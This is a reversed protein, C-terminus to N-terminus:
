GAANKLARTLAAKFDDPIPGQLVLVFPSADIFEVDPPDSSWAGACEDVESRRRQYAADDNFIYVRAHIPTTVGLGSVDFGIASQTMASDPCGADGSVPRDVRIGQDDLATAIGAFDQPTPAPPQGQLSNCGAVLMALAVAAVLRTV